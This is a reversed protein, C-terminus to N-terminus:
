DSNDDGDAVVVPCAFSKQKFLHMLITYKIREANRKYRYAKLCPRWAECHAHHTLWEVQANPHANHMLGM